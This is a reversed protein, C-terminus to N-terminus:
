RWLMVRPSVQRWLDRFDSKRVLVSTLPSHSHRLFVVVSMLALVFEAIVNSLAVGLLGLTPVMVIDLLLNAVATVAVCGAIKDLRGVVVMYSYIVLSISRFLVGLSMSALLTGAPAFAPGYVLPVFVPTVLAMLLVPIALGIPVVRISRAAIEAAKADDATMRGVLPWVMARPAETLLQYFAMAVGYHGVSRLDLLLLLLIGEGHKFVNALIGNLYPGGSARLIPGFAWGTTRLRGAESRSWLWGISWLLTLSQAAANALLAGTVGWGYGAVLIWALLLGVVQSSITLWAYIRMKNDVLLVAHILGSVLMAPLTTLSLWLWEQRFVGSGAENPFFNAISDGGAYVLLAVVGLAATWFVGSVRLIAGIGYQKGKYLYVGGAAFGFGAVVSVLTVVSALVTLIGKGAPGVSRAVILGTVFTLGIVAARTVLLSSVQKFLKM